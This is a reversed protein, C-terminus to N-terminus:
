RIRKGSKVNEIRKRKIIGIMRCTNRYGLFKVAVRVIKAEISNSFHILDIYKKSETLLRERDNPSFLFIYGMVNHIFAECLGRKIYRSTEEEIKESECRINWDDINLLIHEVLKASPGHVISSPRYQYFYFPTIMAVNSANYVVWDIIQMDECLRGKCFTYESEVWYKKSFTKGWASWNSAEKITYKLAEVGSKVLFENKDYRKYLYEREDRVIYYGESLIVDIKVNSDVLKKVNSLFEPSVYDDGDVFTIYRGRAHKVGFNRADSLGGNEKHFTFIQSYKKEYADALFGSKDTSGDDILLIEYLDSQIDIQQILSNVCIDLFDEINYVPVIVSIFM